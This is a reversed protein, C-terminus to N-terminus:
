APEKRKVPNDIDIGALTMRHLRDQVERHAKVYREWCHRRAIDCDVHSKYEEFTMPETKEFVKVKNAKPKRYRKQQETSCRYCITDVRWKDGMDSKKFDVAYRQQKCVRCTRKIKRIETKLINM